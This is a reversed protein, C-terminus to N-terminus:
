KGHTLSFFNQVRLIKRKVEDVDKLVEPIELCVDNAPGLLPPPGSTGTQSPLSRPKLVLKLFLDKGNKTKALVGLGKREPILFILLPSLTGHALVSKVYDFLFLTQRPYTFFVVNGKV